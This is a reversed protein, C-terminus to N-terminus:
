DSEKTEIKKGDEIMRNGQEIKARGKEVLATGQELEKNGETVLKQGHEVMQEGLTPASSCGTLLLIITSILITNIKKM